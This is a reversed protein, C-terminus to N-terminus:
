GPAYTPNERLPPAYIIPTADSYSEDFPKILKQYRRIQYLHLATLVIEATALLGACHATGRGYHQVCIGSWFLSAISSQCELVSLTM